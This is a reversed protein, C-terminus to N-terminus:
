AVGRANLQHIQSKLRERLDVVDASLGQAGQHRGAERLRLVVEAQERKVVLFPLIADLFVEARRGHLQWSYRPKWDARREKSCAISGGFRSTFWEMLRVNTNVIVVRVAHSVNKSKKKDFATKIGIHGEGDIIGAIYGLQGPDDPMVLPPLHRFGM